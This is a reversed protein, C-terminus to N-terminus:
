SGLDETPKWLHKEWGLDEALQLLDKTLELDLDELQDLFQSRSSSPQLSRSTTSIEDLSSSSGLRPSLRLWVPPLQYACRRASCSNHECPRSYLFAQESKFAFNAAESLVSSSTM